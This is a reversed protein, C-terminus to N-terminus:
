KEGGWIKEIMKGMYDKQEDNLPQNNQESYFKDFLDIPKLADINEIEELQHNSRTRANDYEMTMLNKYIVQLKGFAEPVDIEDTLVAAIYDEVNTNEYNKRLTLEDYTGKIIRMDHLPELPISSYTVDGKKGIEVVGVGKKQSVESFSYKLPTGCYRVNERGARQPGHLHGLAVYDFSDFVSVDVNDVGGVSPEESDCRVAGTVFQHAVLINRASTDVKMQEIAVEVADTYSEIKKTPNGDEDVFYPHVTAPKIFPLLYINLPGFEDLEGKQNVTIPEVNGKYAPAFYIGSSEMLRSGFTMREASDHNGSIIYVPLKRKALSTLFDDFLEVAEVPPIGKDYVDGAILIGDPKQEDIINLVKKLIYKQDEIMSFENVRKGLHLDSLHIFKM